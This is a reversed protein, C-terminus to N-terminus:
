EDDGMLRDAITVVAAELVLGEQVTLRETSFQQLTTAEDGERVEVVIMCDLIEVVEGHEDEVRDMLKAATEGIKEQGIVM